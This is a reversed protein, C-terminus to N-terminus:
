ENAATDYVTPWEQKSLFVSTIVIQIVTSIAMVVMVARMGQTIRQRYPLWKDCSEGRVIISLKLYLMWVIGVTVVGLYFKLLISIEVATVGIGFM